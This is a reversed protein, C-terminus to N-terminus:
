KSSFLLCGWGLDSSSKSLENGIIIITVGQAGRNWGNQKIVSSKEKVPIKLNMCPTLNKCHLM